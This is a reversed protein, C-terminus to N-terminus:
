FMSNIVHNKIISAVLEPSEIHPSHFSDKVYFVCRRKGTDGGINRYYETNIFKDDQGQIFTVPVGIENIIQVEDLYQGAAVSSGIASRVGDKTAMINTIVKMYETPTVVDRNVFTQALLDVESKELSSKFILGNTADKFAMGISNSNFPPSSICVLAKLGPLSPAAEIAVHGGLSHGVICYSELRMKKIFDVLLSSYGKMSCQSIDRISSSGHGYLDFGITRVSGKLAKVVAEFASSGSSNGHCFIVAPGKGTGSDFYSIDAGNIQIISMNMDGRYINPINRINAPRRMLQATHTQLIGCCEKM